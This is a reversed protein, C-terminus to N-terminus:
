HPMRSAAHNSRDAAPRTCTWNCRLLSAIMVTQQHGATSTWSRLHPWPQRDQRLPPQRAPAQRLAPCHTSEQIVGRGDTVVRGQLKFGDAARGVTCDTFPPFCCSVRLIVIDFLLFGRQYWCQIEWWCFARRTPLALLSGIVACVLVESLCAAPELYLQELM